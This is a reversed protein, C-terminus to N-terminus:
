NQKWHTYGYLDNPYNYPAKFDGQHTQRVREWESGLGKCALFVIFFPPEKESVKYIVNDEM